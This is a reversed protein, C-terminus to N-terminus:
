SRDAAKLKSLADWVEPRQCSFTGHRRDKGWHFWRRGDRSVDAVVEHMAGDCYECGARAVEELAEIKSARLERAVMGYQAEIMDPDEFMRFQGACDINDVIRMARELMEDPEQSPKRYPGHCDCHRRSRNHTPDPEDAPCGYTRCDMCGPEQSPLSDTPEDGCIGQVKAGCNPCPEWYDQEGPGKTDSM